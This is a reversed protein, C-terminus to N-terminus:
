AFAFTFVDAFLEIDSFEPFVKHTYSRNALMAVNRQGSAIAREILIESRNM